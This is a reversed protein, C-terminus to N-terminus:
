GQADPIQRRASRDRPRSAGLATAWRVPGSGRYDEFRSVRLSLIVDGTKEPRRRGQRPVEPVIGHDVRWNSQSLGMADPWTEHTVDRIRVGLWGGRRKAM